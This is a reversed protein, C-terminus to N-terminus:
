DSLVEVSGSTVHVNLWITAASRGFADNSLRGDRSAFGNAHVRGSITSAQLSVGIDAPVQIRVGGSITDVRVGLDDRQFAGRLDLSVNGSKSDIDIRRLAPCNGTVALDIAGSKSDIEIRSLKPFDGSLSMAVRGSMSDVVLEDMELYSGALSAEVSGSRSEVEVNSAQVRDLDLAVSGSMSSIAFEIQVDSNFALSWANRSDRLGETRPQKIKLSARDGDQRYDDIPRLESHSYEFEVECFEPAGGGVSLPGHLIELEVEASKAGGLLYERHDQIMTGSM